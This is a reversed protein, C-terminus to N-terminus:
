GGRGERIGKSKQKVGGAVGQTGTKAEGGATKDRKRRMVRGYGTIETKYDSYKM